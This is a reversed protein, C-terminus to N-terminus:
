ELLRDASDDDIIKMNAQKSLMNSPSKGFVAHENSGEDIGDESMQEQRPMTLTSPWHEITSPDAQSAPSPVGVDLIRFCQKPLVICM